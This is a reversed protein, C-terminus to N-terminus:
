RRSLLLVIALIVVLVVAGIGLLFVLSFYM